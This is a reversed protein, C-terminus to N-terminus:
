SPRMDSKLLRMRVLPDQVAPASAGAMSADFFTANSARSYCFERGPGRRVQQVTRLTSFYAPSGPLDFFAVGWSRRTLPKWGRLEWGATAPGVGATSLYPMTSFIRVRPSPLLSSIAPSVGSVGRVPNKSRTESDCHFRWMSAFIPPRLSTRPSGRSDGLGGGGRRGPM